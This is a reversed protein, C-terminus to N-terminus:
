KLQKECEIQDRDLGASASSRSHGAWDDAIAQRWQDDDIEKLCDAYEDLEEASAGSDAKRDLAIADFDACSIWAAAYAEAVEESVTRTGAQVAALFPRRADLDKTLVGDAVLPRTGVQGVWKGAVCEASDQVSEPAETDGLAAALSDAADSEDSDLGCATLTLPLVLVLLARRLASRM